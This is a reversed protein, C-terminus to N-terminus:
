SENEEMYSLLRKTLDAQAATRADEISYYSGLSELKGVKDEFPTIVVILRVMLSNESDIIPMYSYRYVLCKAEAGTSSISEWNLQKARM